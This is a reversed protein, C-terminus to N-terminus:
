VMELTKRVEDYTRVLVYKVKGGDMVPSMVYHRITTETKLQSKISFELKEGNIVQDYKSKWYDRTTGLKELITDGVRMEYETGQYRKKLVDNILVIKYHTDFMVISDGTGNIFYNLKLQNDQLEAQARIMQEQTAQMEELNQRMEEEAERMQQENAQAKDLLKRTRQTVRLSQVSVAIVSCVRKVFDIEHPKLEHFTALEIAGLVDTETRLAVILLVSPNAEGLGSTIHLYHQPIEKLYMMDGELICQGILSDGWNIKKELFKKREYAYAAVMSISKEGDEDDVLYFAGIKASVCALLNKLVILYFDDSRGAHQNLVENMRALGESTWTRIDDDAKIQKLNGRMTLLANGLKDHQSIAEFDSDLKGSGINSAFKVKADLSQTLQDLSTIMAGVEDNSGHVYKEVEINGDALQQLRSKVLQIPRSLHNAIYLVAAMLILLGILSLGLTQWLIKNVGANLTKVPVMTAIAWPSGTRAIPVPVIVLLSEEGGVPTVVQNLAKGSEVRQLVHTSDNEFLHSVSKGILSSNEHAVLIGSHSVLFTSADPFPKITIIFDFVNLEIDMGASGIFKGDRILPACISTGLKNLREDAEVSTSSLLYPEAMLEKKSTKLQHYLSGTIDGTLNASDTVPPGEFYHTYRARGYPLSWTDDIASLEITLWTSLYRKDQRIAGTLAQATLYLRDQHDFDPTNGLTSALTRAIGFDQNFIMRVENANQQLYSQTLQEADHHLEQKFRTLVFAMVCSYIIIIAGALLM